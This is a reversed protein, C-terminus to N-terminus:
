KSDIIESLPHFGLGYCSDLFLFYLIYHPFVDNAVKSDRPDEIDVMAGLKVRISEMGETVSPPDM